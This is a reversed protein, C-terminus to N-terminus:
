MLRQRVKDMDTVLQKISSYDNPTDDIQERISINLVGALYFFDTIIPKFCCYASRVCKINEQDRLYLFKFDDTDIIHPKGNEEVLVNGIHIDTHYIYQSHLEEMNDIIQSIVNLFQSPYELLYKDVNKCDKYRKLISGVLGGYFVAYGIPFDTNKIYKQRKALENLKRLDDQIYNVLQMEEEIYHKDNKMIIPLYRKYLKLLRDNALVYMIGNSGTLQLKTTPSILKPLNQLLNKNVELRELTM